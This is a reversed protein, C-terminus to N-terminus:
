MFYDFDQETRVRKRLRLIHASVGPDIQVFNTEGQWLFHGGTILDHVQYTEHRQLGLEELPMRLWGSQAHHPDLNVVVFIINSQDPTSKGYFLMRDNDIPYFRLRHDAHLAPNERRVRNVLKIFERFV